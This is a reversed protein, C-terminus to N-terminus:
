FKFSIMRKMVFIGTAMLLAAMLLMFNGRFDTFLPMMYSPTTFMVMTMVAPPLSAIIGASALAESSLAKIKEGMMRRARLVASLNGLAEALNGGTKQQIAIVITFFRLESTPMRGYMKELAQELTLGVGLGEVLTQFEPGLPAPSERAIIKFCEHVPLGSKIGRVIVDVANPFELSFKKMRSKGLFGVIWRPLGLGFILAIGIGVLIPLGFILTGLGTVLGVVASIIYFTRVSLSLGAQKLRAAMTTRAKRERRDADQLQVLIQKRRAEPTNAAAAKRALAASKKPEGLSQARKVAQASSDDGGVFVWGLGGITIFALVAALIPLM